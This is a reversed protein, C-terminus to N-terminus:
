SLKLPLNSNQVFLEKEYRLGTSAGDDAGRVVTEPSSFVWGTGNIVPVQSRTRLRVRDDRLNTPM